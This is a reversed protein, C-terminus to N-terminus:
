LIVGSRWLVRLPNCPIFMSVIDEDLIAERRAEKDLEIVIALLGRGKAMRASTETNLISTAMDPKSTYKHVETDTPYRFQIM